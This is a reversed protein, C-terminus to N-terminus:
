RSQTWIRWREIQRDLMEGTHALPDYPIGTIAALSRCIQDRVLFDDERELRALLAPAIEALDLEGAKRAAERRVYGYADSLLPLLDAALGKAKGPALESLRDLAALRSRPSSAALDRRITELLPDPLPSPEAAREEPPGSAELRSVRAEFDVMRGRVADIEQALAALEEAGATSMRALAELREGMEERLASLDSAAEEAADDPATRVIEPGAPDSPPPPGSPGAGDRTLLFAALALAATGAVGLFWRRARVFRARPLCAHCLMAGRWAGATKGAIDEEPIDRGCYDCSIAEPM